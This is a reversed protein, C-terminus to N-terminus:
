NPTCVARVPAAFATGPPVEDLALQAAVLRELAGDPRSRADSAPDVVAWDHLLAGLFADACSGLSSAIARVRRSAGPAALVLDFTMLSCRQALLKCAAYAHKISEPHDAGILIPRAPRQMFMRALDGANAHLLVVDAKPAAQALADVFAAASGRTDVHRLPLGRAALYGIQPSLDEIGAGLDLLSIERPAPAGDAADVVLVRRGRAVFAATLEDIVVGSFAVHPNAALPVVHQRSAAFLRRLGHAQDLPAPVSAYFDRMSM